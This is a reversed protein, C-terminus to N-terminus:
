RRMTRLAANVMMDLNAEDCNLRRNVKNSIEKEVKANMIEM